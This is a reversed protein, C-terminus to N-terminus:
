GATPRIRAHPEAEVISSGDRHSWARTFAAGLLFVQALYYTWIMFVAISGVAGQLWQPSLHGLLLALLWTGLLLLSASLVSGVWVDRWKIRADPLVRYILALMPTLLALPIVLEQAILLLPKSVDALLETQQLFRAIVSVLSQVALTVLLLAACALVMAFSLLRKVAFRRVFSLASGDQVVDVGWTLNLAEQIQLFLRSAAWLLMLLALVGLAKSNTRGAAELLRLFTAAVDPNTIKELGLLLTGRARLPDVVLGAATVALVALPAISLLTYFSIAAALLDGHEGFRTWTERVLDTWRKTWGGRMCSALALFTGM